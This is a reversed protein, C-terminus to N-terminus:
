RPEALRGVQAALESAQARLRTAAPRAGEGIREISRQAESLFRRAAAADARALSGRAFELAREARATPGTAVDSSAPAPAMRQEMRILVDRMQRLEIWNAASLAVFVVLLFVVLARV